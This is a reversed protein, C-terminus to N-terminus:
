LTQGKPRAVLRNRGNFGHGASHGAVSAVFDCFGGSRHGRVSGDSGGQAASGVCGAFPRRSTALRQAVCGAFPRRSTASRKSAKSASRGRTAEKRRLLGRRTSWIVRGARAVAGSCLKPSWGDCSRRGAPFTDAVGLTSIAAAKAEVIAWRKSLTTVATPGKGAEARRLCLLEVRSSRERLGLARSRGLTVCHLKPSLGACSCIERPLRKQSEVRELQLARSASAILDSCGEGSSDEAEKRRALLAKPELRRLQAKM